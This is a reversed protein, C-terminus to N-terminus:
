LWNWHRKTINKLKQTTKWARCQTAILGVYEVGALSGKNENEEMNWLMMILKMMIHVRSFTFLSIKLYFVMIISNAGQM